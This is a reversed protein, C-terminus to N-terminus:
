PAPIPPAGASTGRRPAVARAHRRAPAPCALTTDVRPRALREIAGSPYEVTVSKVAAEAGLGFTLVHSSDSCLGESTIFQSALRRGSETEITVRAGISAPTDRLAVKLYHAAGGQNIFARAKGDLNAYVLDPYGDGNWDAVLPTIAFQRNTVGAQEEVSAFSADENQLLLRGPLRFLKHGPFGVYNQALVIDQRGDLNFDEMVVGWSFEYEATRTAFAADGFRFAGENHLLMQEPHFVQDARLDGRALFGPVTHGVNSFFLDPRGDNDYDGVGIGMPYSYFSTTPNPTDAFRLNGLNRWTKVHGTDHAVVLDLRRDCDLDVFMAQFANHVYAVGAEETIDRWTNDGNNLLLVSKAGYGPKNFINTGEMRSRPLYTAVFLDVWGDDNIDGLAVSVPVSRENFPIALKKGTFGDGRNLYLYVGSERAVFLDPRGDGNADITAAGYTPDGPTKTLGAGASAPAFSGNQYRYLADDQDAGGGLFLEPVGDGDSDLVASALFPLSKQNWRHTFGVAVETFRPVACTIASKPYPNSYAKRYFLGIMALAFTACVSLAVLFVRKM